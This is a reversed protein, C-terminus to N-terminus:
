PADINLQGDNYTFRSVHSFMRSESIGSVV